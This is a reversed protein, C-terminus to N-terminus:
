ISVLNFLFSVYESTLCLLTLAARASCFLPTMESSTTTSHVLSVRSLTTGITAENKKPALNAFKSGENDTRCVVCKNDKTDGFIIKTSSSDSPNISSLRAKAFKFASITTKPFDEFYEVKESNTLGCSFSFLNLGVLTSM